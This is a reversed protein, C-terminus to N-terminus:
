KAPPLCVRIWSKKAVKRPTFGPRKKKAAPPGPVGSDLAPPSAFGLKGPFPIRVWTKKKKAAPAGPRWEPRSDVSNQARIWSDPCSDVSDQARIWSKESINQRVRKKKKKQPQPESVGSDLAIQAGTFGAKELPCSDPVNNKKKRRGRSRPIWPM